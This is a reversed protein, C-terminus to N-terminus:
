RLSPGEFWFEKLFLDKDNFLIKCILISSGWSFGPHPARLDKGKQAELGSIVGFFELAKLSLTKFQGRFYLSKGLIFDSVVTDEIVM